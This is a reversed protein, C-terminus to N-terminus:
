KKYVYFSKFHYYSIHFSWYYHNQGGFLNCMNSFKYCNAQNTQNHLLTWVTIFNSHDSRLDLVKSFKCNLVNKSGKWSYFYRCFTPIPSYVNQVSSGQFDSVSTSCNWSIYIPITKALNLTGFLSRVQEWKNKCYCCEQSFSIYSFFYYLHSLNDLKWLFWKTMCSIQKGSLKKTRAQVAANEAWEFKNDLSSM